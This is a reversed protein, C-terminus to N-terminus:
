LSYLKLCMNFIKLGMATFTFLPDRAWQHKLCLALLNLLQIDYSSPLKELCHKEKKGSVCDINALIACMKQLKQCDHLFKKCIFRPLPKLQETKIFKNKKTYIKSCTRRHALILSMVDSSVLSRASSSSKGM